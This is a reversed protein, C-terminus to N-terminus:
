FRGFLHKKAIEYDGLNEKALGSYYNVPTADDEINRFRTPIYRAIGGLSLPAGEEPYSIKVSEM